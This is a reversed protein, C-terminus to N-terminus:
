FGFHNLELDLIVACHDLRLADDARVILNGERSLDASLDRVHTWGEFIPGKEFFAFNKDFQIWGDIGCGELAGLSLERLGVGKVSLLLRPGLM